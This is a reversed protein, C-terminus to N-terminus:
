RVLEVITVCTLHITRFLCSIQLSMHVSQTCTYLGTILIINTKFVAISNNLLVIHRIHDNLILRTLITSIDYVQIMYITTDGHVGLVHHPASHHLPYFMRKRIWLDHSRIRASCTKVDAKLLSFDIDFHESSSENRLCINNV